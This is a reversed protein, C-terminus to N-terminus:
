CLCLQVILASAPMPAAACQQKSTAAHRLCIAALVEACSGAQLEGKQTGIGILFGHCSSNVLAVEYSPYNNAAVESPHQQPQQATSDSDLQRTAVAAAALLVLLLCSSVAQILSM